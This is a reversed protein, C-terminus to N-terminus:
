VYMWSLCERDTKRASLAPQGGGLVQSTLGTCQQEIFRRRVEDAIERTVDRSWGEAINFAVVRVPNEYLDNLLNRIM